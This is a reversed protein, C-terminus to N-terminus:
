ISVVGAGLGIVFEDGASSGRILWAYRSVRSTIGSGASGTCNINIGIGIGIYVNVRAHYAIGIGTATDAIQIAGDM